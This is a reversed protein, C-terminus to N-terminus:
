GCWSRLTKEADEMWGRMVWLSQWVFFAWCAESHIVIPPFLRIVLDAHKKSTSASTPNHVNQGRTGEYCSSCSFAVSAFGQILDQLNPSRQAAMTSWILEDGVYIEFANTKTLAGAFMNTVMFLGFIASMKNERIAEPLSDGVLLLMGILLIQMISVINAYFQALPPAPYGAPHVNLPVSARSQILQAIQNFLGNTGSPPLASPISGM